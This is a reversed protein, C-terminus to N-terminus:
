LSTLRRDNNDYTAATAPCRQGRLRHFCHTPCLERLAAENDGMWLLSESRALRVFEERYTQASVQCTESMKDVDILEFDVLRAIENYDAAIKRFRSMTSELRLVTDEFLIDYGDFYMDGIETVAEKFAWTDEVMALFDSRCGDRVQQAMETIVRDAQDVTARPKLSGLLAIHAWRLQPMHYERVAMNVTCVLSYLFGTEQNAIWGKLEPQDCLREAWQLFGGGDKATHLWLLTREKTALSQEVKNLRHKLSM